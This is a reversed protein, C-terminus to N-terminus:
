RPEHHRGRLDSIAAHYGSVRGQNYDRRWIPDAELKTAQEHIMAIAAQTAYDWGQRFDANTLLMRKLWATFDEAGDQSDELTQKRAACAPCDPTCVYGNEATDTHEPM